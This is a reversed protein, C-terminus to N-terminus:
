RLKAWLSFTQFLIHQTTICPRASLKLPAPALIELPCNQQLAPQKVCLSLVSARQGAKIETLVSCHARGQVPSFLSASQRHGSRVHM